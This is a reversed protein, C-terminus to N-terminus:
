SAVSSRYLRASTLFEDRDDRSHVCICTCLLILHAVLQTSDNTENKKKKKFEKGRKRGERSWSVASLRLLQEVSTSRNNGYTLLALAYNCAASPGPAAQNASLSFPM